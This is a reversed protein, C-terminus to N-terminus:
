MKKVNVWRYSAQVFHVANEPCCKWRCNILTFTQIEILIANFSKRRTWSVILWYQNLYRCPALGAVLEIIDYPMVLVWHDLCDKFAISQIEQWIQTLILPFRSIFIDIAWQLVRGYRGYMLLPSFMYRYVDLILWMKPLLNSIMYNSCQRNHCLCSYSSILFM